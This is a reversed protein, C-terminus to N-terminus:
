SDSCHRTGVLKQTNQRANQRECDNAGGHRRAATPTTYSRNVQLTRAGSKRIREIQLPQILVGFGVRINAEVVLRDPRTSADLLDL